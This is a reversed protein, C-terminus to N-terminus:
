FVDDSRPSQSCSVDDPMQYAHSKDTPPTDYFLLTYLQNGIGAVIGDLQLGLLLCCHSHVHM